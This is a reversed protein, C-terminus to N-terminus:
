GNVSFRCQKMIRADHDCPYPQFCFAPSRHVSLCFPEGIRGTAWMDAMRVPEPVRFKGSKTFFLDNLDTFQRLDAPRKRRLPIDLTQEFHDDLLRPFEGIGVAPRKVDHGVIFGLQLKGDGLRLREKDSHSSGPPLDGPLRHPELLGVSRGVVFMDRGMDRQGSIGDINRIGIGCLPKVEPPGSFEVRLGPEVGFGHEHDWHFVMLIIDDANQLQQIGSIFFAAINNGEGRFALFHRLGEGGLGCNGEGVVAQNM